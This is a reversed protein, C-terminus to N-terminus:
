AGIAFYYFNSTTSIDGDHRVVSLTFGTPSRGVVTMIHAASASQVTAADTISVNLCAAPFAIPFTISGFYEAGGYGWQLILGSPLIQYGSLATSVSAQGGTWFERWAAWVGATKRRWFVRDTAGGFAIQTAASADAAPHHQLTFSSTSLPANPTGTGARYSGAKTVANFDAISALGDLAVGAEDIRTKLNNTRQIMAKAHENWLGNLGGAQAEGNEIQRVSPYTAGTTEPLNAM